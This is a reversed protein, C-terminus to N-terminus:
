QFLIKLDTMIGKAVPSKMLAGIGKAISGNGLALKGGAGFLGSTAPAMSATGHLVAGMPTAATGLAAGKLGGMLAPGGLAIAALPLLVKPRM